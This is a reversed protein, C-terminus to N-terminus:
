EEGIDQGEKQQDILAEAESITIAEAELSSLEQEKQQLPSKSQNEKEIERFHIYEERQGGNGNEPDSVWFMNNSYNDQIAQWVIYDESSKDELHNQIEKLIESYPQGKFRAELDRITSDVKVYLNFVENGELEPCKKQLLGLFGETLLCKWEEESFDEGKIKDEWAKQIEKKKQILERRDKGTFYKNISRQVFNIIGPNIQLEEVDFDGQYYHCRAALGTPYERIWNQTGIIQNKNELYIDTEFGKNDLIIM